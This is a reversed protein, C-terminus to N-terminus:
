RTAWRRSASSARTRPWNIPRRAAAPDVGTRRRPVDQAALGGAGAGQHAALHLRRGHPGAAAAEDQALPFRPGFVRLHWGPRRRQKGGAHRDPGLQTPPGHLPGSRQHHQSSKQDTAGRGVRGPRFARGPGVPRPRALAARLQGAAAARRRTAVALGPPGPRGRGGDSPDGAGMLGARAALQDGVVQPLGRARQAARRPAAAPPHGHHGAHDQGLGDRRGAGGGAASLPLRRGRIPVPLARVAHGAVARGAAIGVVAPSHVPAPRGTQDRRGAAQHSDPRGALGTNDM